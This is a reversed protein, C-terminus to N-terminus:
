PHKVLEVRRNRARGDESVNSNNRPGADCMQKGGLRQVANQYNRAIQLWSPPTANGPIIDYRWSTLHGEAHQNATNNGEQVVLEYADFQSERYEEIYFGPMRTLLAPDKSGPIDPKQQAECPLAAVLLMAAALAPIMLRM